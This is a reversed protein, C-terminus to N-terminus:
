ASCSIECGGYRHSRPGHLDDLVCDGITPDGAPDLALMQGHEALRAQLASLRIGAEVTCTLDGAEHELIRDSVSQLVWGRWRISGTPGRCRAACAHRRSSSALTPMGDPDFARRLRQMAELDDESFLLPM